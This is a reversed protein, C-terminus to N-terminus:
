PQHGQPNRPPSLAATASPPVPGMTPPVPAQVASPTPAASAPLPSPPNATTTRSTAHAPPKIITSATAPSILPVPMWATKSLTRPKKSSILPETGNAVIPVSPKVGPPLTAKAMVQSYQLYTINSPLLINLKGSPCTTSCAVLEEDKAPQTSPDVQYAYSAAMNRENEAVSAGTKSMLVCQFAQFTVSKCAPEDGCKDICEQLSRAGSRQIVQTGHLRGCQIKFFIGTPTFYTKGYDVPCVATNGTGQQVPQPSVFPNPIQAPAGGTGSGTGSGTGGTGTGVGGTGTGTGGTGGGSYPNPIPGGTAGTGGAGTGTGGTGGGPLRAQNGAAFPNPIPQNQYPQQVQAHATMVWSAPDLALLLLLCPLKMSFRHRDAMMNLLVFM